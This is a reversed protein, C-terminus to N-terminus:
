HLMSALSNMDDNHTQISDKKLHEFFLNMLVNDPAETMIIKLDNDNQLSEM